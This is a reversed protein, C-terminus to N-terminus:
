HLVSLACAECSWCRKHADNNTIRKVEAEDLVLRYAMLELAVRGLNEVGSKLGVSANWLKAGMRHVKCIEKSDVIDCNELREVLFFIESIIPEISEDCTDRLAQLDSNISSLSPTAMGLCHHPHTIKANARHQSSGDKVKRDGM